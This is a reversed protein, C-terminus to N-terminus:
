QAATRRAPGLQRWCGARLAGAPMGAAGENLVLRKRITGAGRWGCPGVASTRRPQAELTDTGVEYHSGANRPDRRHGRPSARSGTTRLTAGTCWCGRGMGARSHPSGLHARDGTGKAREGPGGCPLCCYPVAPGGSPTPPEWSMLPGPKGM